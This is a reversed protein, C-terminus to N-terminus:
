SSRKPSMNFCVSLVKGGLGCRLALETWFPAHGNVDKLAPQLYRCNFELWDVWTKLDSVGLREQLEAVSYEIRGTSWASPALSEYLRVSAPGSLCSVVRLFIGAVHSPSALFEAIEPNLNWYVVGNPAEVSTSALLNCSSQRSEGKLLYDISLITQQLRWLGELIEKDSTSDKKGLACRLDACSASFGRGDFAEILHGGAKALIARFLRLDASRPEKQCESIRCGIIRGTGLPSSLLTDVGEIYRSPM